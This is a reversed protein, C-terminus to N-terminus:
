AIEEIRYERAIAQTQQGWLSAKTRAQHLDFAQQSTFLEEVTWILPDDTENVEFSLCGSEERTLRIHEPLYRRVQETEEANHCLLRGTLKIM